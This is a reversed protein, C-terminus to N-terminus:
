THEARDETELRRQDDGREATQERHQEHERLRHALEDGDRLAHTARAQGAHSVPVAPLVASAFSCTISSSFPACTANRTALSPMSCTSSVSGQFATSAAPPM